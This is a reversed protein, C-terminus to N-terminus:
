AAGEAKRLAADILKLIATEAPDFDPLDVNTRIALVLAARARELAAYLAPAAAILHPNVVDAM